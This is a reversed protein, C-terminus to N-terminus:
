NDSNLLPVLISRSKKLFTNKDTENRIFVDFYQIGEPYNRLNNINIVGDSLYDQAYLILPRLQAESPNPDDNLFGDRYILVNIGGNEKVSKAENIYRGDSIIMNNNIAERLAIKIWIDPVIQRFGDGINQLGKRIPLLFGPPPSDIRKWKEIFDRDVDFASCFTNKVANAFAGREWKEGSKQNLEVALDDCLIDKGNALQGYVAILKM